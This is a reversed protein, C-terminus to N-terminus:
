FGTGYRRIKIGVPTHDIRFEHDRRPVAEPVPPQPNDFLPRWIAGVGEPIFIVQGRLVMLVKRSMIRQVRAPLWLSEPEPALLKHMIQWRIDDGCWRLFAEKGGRVQCVGYAEDDWFKRLYYRLQDRTLIDKGRAPRPNRGVHQHAFKM